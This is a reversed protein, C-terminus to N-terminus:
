SYIYIDGANTIWMNGGGFASTGWTPNASPASAQNIKATVMYEDATPTIPNATGVADAVAWRGPVISSPHALFFASASTTNTTYNALIGADARANSGSNLVIYQDAVALNQVNLYTLTGSATINGKVFLNKEMTVVSGSDSINSGSLFGNSFFPVQLENLSSTKVAVTNGSATILTGQGVAVTIASAGNYSSGSQTLGPGFSLANALSGIGAGFFSGSFSGTFSGTLSSNAGRLQISTDSQGTINTGDDALNSNLFGSTGTDWKTIRNNSLSSAGIISLAHTKGEGAGANTIGLGTNATVSLEAVYNGTTDTGLVVSNPQIAAAGDAGILVDGSVKGFVYTSIQSGSIFKNDATTSGDNIFFKDTDAVPSKPTAPFTPTATVGTLNTGDGTFSGTFSGTLQATTSSIVQTTGVTLQNLVADSGSVVVKKWTAM